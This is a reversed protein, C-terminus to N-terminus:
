NAHTGGGGIVPNPVGICQLRIVVRFDYLSYQGRSLPPDPLLSIQCFDPFDTEKYEQFNM